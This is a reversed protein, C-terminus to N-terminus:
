TEDELELYAIDLDATKERFEIELAAGALTTESVLTEFCFRLSEVDVGAWEGLRVGVRTVAARPYEACQQNVADILSTAISMEHM